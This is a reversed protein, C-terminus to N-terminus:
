RRRRFNRPPLGTQRMSTRAPSGPAAIQFTLVRTFVCKNFAHGSVFDLDLGIDEGDGEPEAASTSASLRCNGVPDIRMPPQGPFM